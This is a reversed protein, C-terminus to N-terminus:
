GVEDEYISDELDKVAQEYETKGGFLKVIKAPKGYSEFDALSLVKIDEVETIGQNMYKDLLIELVARADGSYKSFFDKKKVNNAREARTNNDVFVVFGEEQVFAHIEVAFQASPNTKMANGLIHNDIVVTGVDPLMDNDFIADGSFYVIGDPSIAYDASDAQSVIEATGMSVALLASCLISIILKKM